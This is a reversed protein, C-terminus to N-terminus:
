ARGRRPDVPSFIFARNGSASTRQAPHAAGRDGEGEGGGGGGMAAPGTADDGDDSNATGGQQLRAHEFGDSQELPLQASPSHM